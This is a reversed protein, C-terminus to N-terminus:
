FGKKLSFEDTTNKMKLAKGAEQLGGCSNLM